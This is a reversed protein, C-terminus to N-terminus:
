ARSPLEALMLHACKIGSQVASEITAPFDSATYDGALFFHKLPTKQPPRALGAVCGITARKEAIVKSWRPAPLDKLTKKLQSHVQTALEEHSLEEHPGRASIVAGLLGHQGCLPGRDFVWHAPGDALGLMPIDLRTAEPYQLYISYIPQYEFREIQQRIETLESIDAILAPVAYPPLACIVHSFHDIGRTSELEFGQPAKRLATVRHKLHVSGGRTAILSAAREPFLSSLNESAFVLDSSTRDGDLIARLVNLFLHASAEQVPTNLAAVCLPQWFFRTMESGQNHRELLELVSVHQAPFHARMQLFFRAAARKQLWTAGRALLLGCLLNLPAPFPLAKMRFHEAIEWSFPFRLVPSDAGTTLSILRLTERYAGILIHLGNDLVVGRHDVKRARGGLLDMVEFVTAPVDAEALTVAAALGAYGGGIVAVSAQGLSHGSGFPRDLEEKSNL